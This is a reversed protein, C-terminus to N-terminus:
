PIKRPRNSRKAAWTRPAVATAPSPRSCPGLSPRNINILIREYLRSVSEINQMFFSEGEGGYTSAEEEAENRLDKEKSAALCVIHTLM